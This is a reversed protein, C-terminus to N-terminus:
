QCGDYLRVEVFFEVDSGSKHKHGSILILKSQLDKLDPLCYIKGVATREEVDEVIEVKVSNDVTIGERSLAVNSQICGVHYVGRSNILELEAFSFTEVSSLSARM